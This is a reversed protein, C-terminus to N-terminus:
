KGVLIAVSREGMFISRQDPLDPEAGPPSVDEGPPMGTNAFRHWRLGAPLQPLEFRHGQWHMNMATYIFPATELPARPVSGGHAHVGPDSLPGVLGRAGGARGGPSGRAM